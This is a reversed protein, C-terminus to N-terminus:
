ARVRDRQRALLWGIGAVLLGGAGVVVFGLPAGGHDIAVGALPSGIASGVTFASGQLGLALGRATAPALRSIHEGSAAILPACMLNMPILLLCLWLVSGDGLGVPMELLGMLALLVLVSPTRKVGGYVLGGTISSACMAFFAVGIWGQKGAHELSAITSVEMGVLCLTAGACVVFVGIVPGRLWESVRPKPGDVVEDQHVMPPNAVYLLVGAVLISVGIFVLAADTSFKTAMFVGLAPGAMFSLEVSISDLSLAVRRQGEPVLATIIQRGISMMPVGLLGVAFSAVLLTWYSLLPAVLWFATSATVSLALMLRLGREDILKGMLPAGLGMGVTGAAGVLGAAGYGEDLTVAVHLTLIVGTAAPPMRAFLMLLVLPRVKPLVLVHKFPALNM